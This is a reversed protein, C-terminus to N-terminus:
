PNRKKRGKTKGGDEKREREREREKQIWLSGNILGNWPLTDIIVMQKKRAVREM